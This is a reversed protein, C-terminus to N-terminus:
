LQSNKKAFTVWAFVLQVIEFGFAIDTYIEQPLLELNAAAAEAWDAEPLACIHTANLLLEMFSLGAGEVAAMEVAVRMMAVFAEANDKAVALKEEPTAAADFQVIASINQEDLMKSMNALYEDLAATLEVGSISKFVPMLNANAVFTIIDVEGTAPDNYEYAKAYKPTYRKVAM